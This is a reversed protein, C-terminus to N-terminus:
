ANEDEKYEMPQSLYAKGKDILWSGRIATGHEILGANDAITYLAM